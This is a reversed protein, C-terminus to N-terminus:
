AANNVNVKGDLEEGSIGDILYWDNLEDRYFFHRKKDIGNSQWKLFMHVVKLNDDSKILAGVWSNPFNIGVDILGNDLVEYTVQGGFENQTDIFPVVVNLVSFNEGLCFMSSAIKDNLKKFTRRNDIKRSMFNRNRKPMVKGHLGEGTKLNNKILTQTCGMAAFM